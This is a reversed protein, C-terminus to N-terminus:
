AYGVLLGVVVVVGCVTALKSYWPMADWWNLPADSISLLHVRGAELRRIRENAAAALKPSMQRPTMERTLDDNNFQCDVGCGSKCAQTPQGDCMRIFTM